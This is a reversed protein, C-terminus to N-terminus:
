CACASAAHARAGGPPCVGRLAPRGAGQALHGGSCARRRRTPTSSSATTTCWCATPRWSSWCGTASSPRACDGGRRAQPRRHRHGNGVPAARARRRRAQDGPGHHAALALRRERHARPLRRRLEPQRGEARRDDLRGDGSPGRPAGARDPRCRADREGGAPPRPVGGLRQRPLGPAHGPRLGMRGPQRRRPRARAAGEGGGARERRPAARHHRPRRRPLRPVRRGRRPAVPGLHHPDPARRAQRHARDRPRLVAAARRARERLREVLARPEVGVAPCRGSAAPRLDADRRLLAAVTPAARSGPPACSRTPRGSGTPRCRPSTASATENHQSLSLRREDRRAGLYMYLTCWAARCPSWCCRTSCASTSCAVGAPGDRRAGAARGQASGRHHDHGAGVKMAGSVRLAKM